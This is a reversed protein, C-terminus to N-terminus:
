GMRPICRLAIHCSQSVAYEGDCGLEDDVLGIVFELGATRSDSSSCSGPAADHATLQVLQEYMEIVGGCSVLPTPDLELPGLPTLDVNMSLRSGQYRHARFTMNQNIDPVDGQAVPSAFRWCEGFANQVGHWNVKPPSKAPTEGRGAFDPQQWKGSASLFYLGAFVPIPLMPGISLKSAYTGDLTNDYDTHHISSTCLVTPGVVVWASTTSSPVKASILSKTIHDAVLITMSTFSSNTRLREWTTLGPNGWRWLLQGPTFQRVSLGFSMSPCADCEVHPTPLCSYDIANIHLWDSGACKLAMTSTVRLVSEASWVKYFQNPRTLIKCSPGVGCREWVVDAGGGTPLCAGADARWNM